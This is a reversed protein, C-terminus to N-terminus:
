AAKAEKVEPGFNVAIKPSAVLTLLLEPPIAMNLRFRTVTFGLARMTPLAENFEDLLKSVGDSATDVFSKVTGGLSKLDM